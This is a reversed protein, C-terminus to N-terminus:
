PSSVARRAGRVVHKILKEPAPSIEISLINLLPFLHLKGEIELGVYNSSMAQEINGALNRLRTDDADVDVVLPEDHAFKITVRLTRSSM